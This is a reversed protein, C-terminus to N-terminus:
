KGEKRRVEVVWAGVEVTYGEGRTEAVSVLAKGARNMKLKVQSSKTGTGILDRNRQVAAKFGIVQAEYAALIAPDGFAVRQVESIRADSVGRSRLVRAILKPELHSDKVYRVLELYKSVAEGMSAVVSQALEALKECRERTKQPLDTFLDRQAASTNEGAPLLTPLTLKGKRKRDTIRKEETM